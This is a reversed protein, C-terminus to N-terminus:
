QMYLALFYVFQNKYGNSMSKTTEQISNDFYNGRVSLINAQFIINLLLLSQRVWSIWLFLLGVFMEAVVCTCTFLMRQSFSFRNTTKTYASTCVTIYLM